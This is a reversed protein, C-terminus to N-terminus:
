PRSAMMSTNWYYLSDYEVVGGEHPAHIIQGNGVYLAVHQSPSEYFILDGPQIDSLPIHTTESYQAGSFHSLSVGGARWAYMTLGSCDYSNPGAAGWEYPKGLQSQAAAIAAGAGGRVSPPPGLNKGGGSSSGGGGSSSGGGGGGGSSVAAKARAQAAAAEEAAKKAQAAAVLDALEGKAQSLLQQQESAAASAQAKHDNLDRTKAEAASQADNLQGIQIKVDEETARLQDILQQRNGSAASLYGQRQGIVTFDDSSSLASNVDDAGHVYADIAYTRLEAAHKDQEAKAADVKAQADAVQANLADLELQAGNAAEAYQEITHNLDDLKAAIADAQAQKDSIEDASAAKPLAGIVAIVLVAAILALARRRGEIVRVM